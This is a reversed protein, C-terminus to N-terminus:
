LRLTGVTQRHEDTTANQEMVAFSQRAKETRGNKVAEVLDESAELYRVLKLDGELSLKLSRAQAIEHAYNLSQLARGFDQADNALSVAISKLLGAVRNLAHGEEGSDPDEDFVEVLEWWPRSANVLDEAEVVLDDATSGDEAMQELLAPVKAEHAAAVHSLEDAARKLITAEIAADVGGGFENVLDGGFDVGDAKIEAASRTDSPNGTAAVAFLAECTWRAVAAEAASSVTDPGLRVDGIEDVLTQLPEWAAMNALLGATAECAASFSDSDYAGRSVEDLVSHWRVLVADHPSLSNPENAVAEDATGIAFYWAAAERMRFTPDGVLRELSSAAPDPRADRAM